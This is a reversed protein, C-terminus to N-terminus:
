TVDECVLLILLWGDVDVIAFTCCKCGTYLFVLDVINKLYLVSISTMLFLSMLLTCV